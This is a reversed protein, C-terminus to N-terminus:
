EELVERFFEELNQWTARLRAESPHYTPNHTSLNLGFLEQEEHIVKNLAKITHNNRLLGRNADTLRKMMAGLDPTWDAVAKIARDAPRGANKAAVDSLYDNQMKQTEGKSNLFCFVSIEIFSRFTFACANPFDTPSLKKLEDCLKQVRTNTAKCPFTEPILGPRRPPATKVDRELDSRTAKEMAAVLIRIEPGVWQWMKQYDLQLDIGNAAGGSQVRTKNEELEQAAASFHGDLHRRANQELRETLGDFTEIKAQGLVRAYQSILHRAKENVFGNLRDKMNAATVASHVLGRSTMEGLVEQCIARLQIKRFIPDIECLQEVLAFAEDLTM